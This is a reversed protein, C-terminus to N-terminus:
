LKWKVIEQCINKSEGIKLSEIQKSKPNKSCGITESNKWLFTFETKLLDKM